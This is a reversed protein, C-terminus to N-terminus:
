PLRFPQADGYVLYTETRLFAKVYYTKGPELNHTVDATFEGTSGTAGLAVQPSNTIRPDNTQSWVFGHELVPSAGLSLISARYTVRTASIETVPATTVQPYQRAPSIDDKSCSSMFLLLAFLFVCAPIPTTHISKM